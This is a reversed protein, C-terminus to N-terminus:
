MVLYLYIDDQFSYKLSVIWKNGHVLVNREARIHTVQNKKIMEKKKLRKIAVVEGSKKERCIRVEGFAGKGIISLPEFDRTSIKTRKKRLM